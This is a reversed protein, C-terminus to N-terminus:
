EEEQTQNLADARVRDGDAIACWLNPPCGERILRVLFEKRSEGERPETDWTM